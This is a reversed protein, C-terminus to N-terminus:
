FAFHYSLSNCFLLHFITSYNYEGPKGTPPTKLQSRTKAMKSHKEFLILKSQLTEFNFIILHTQVYCLIFSSLNLSNSIGGWVHQIFTHLLYINLKLCTSNSYMRYLYVDISSWFSKKSENIWTSYSYASPINTRTLLETSM